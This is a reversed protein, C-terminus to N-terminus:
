AVADRRRRMAAGVLGFGAILMAWSAPEPVTGNNFSFTLNQVGGNFGDPGFQFILGTASTQGFNVTTLSNPATAVTGSTLLNWGFDYVRFDIERLLNPYGGFDVSDLTLTGANITTLRFEGFGTNAWAASAGSYQGNWFRLAAEATAVNGIGNTSRHSVDVDATDGVTQDMFSYNVCGGTCSATDFVVVTTAASVPAASAAAAFLAAAVFGRVM